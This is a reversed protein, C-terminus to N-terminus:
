SALARCRYSPGPSPAPVTLRFLVVGDEASLVRKELLSLECIMAQSIPDTPDAGRANREGYAPNRLDVAVHRATGIEPFLAVRRRNAVQGGLTNVLSVAAGDPLRDLVRKAAADHENPSYLGARVDSGGPLGSWWPLPGMVYGAVACALLPAAAAWRWRPPAPSRRRAWILLRRVGLVAAWWVFPVQGAVYHFHVSTQAGQSSLLNIAFEPLAVLLAIPALLHLLLLPALHGALYGFDRGDTAEGLLLLPNTFVNGVIGGVSGGVEDYRDAFPGGEFPTYHPIVVQFAFLSWALGLGLTVLGARRDGWVIAAYLGLMGVLLGIEEKCMAAAAAALFFGLYRRERLLWIAFLLLPAALTVPHFEDLTAWQLPPFLLYAGALAAPAWAPCLGALEARAIRFAPWAGSAVIAAQAILLLKPDEWLRYLPALVVLIPDVHVGLRTYPTGAADSIELVRGHATNWVTQAMNGLDFRAYGFDDQKRMSLAAFVATYVFGGLAVAFPARSARASM